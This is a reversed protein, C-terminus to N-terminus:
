GFGRLLRVLWRTRGSFLRPAYYAGAAHKSTESLTPYPAIVNALASLKLGREVALVWPLILEGAHAGVIGAGLVRGGRGAVVKVLGETALEARARDNQAFPWRVIEHRIGKARAESEGLGVAALEPDTFTAHPLARTSARAPLRFLVNRIVIGAQYNAAHTFRPGGAVDGIAFVRANTTRLRVDVKIGNADTAIGASALGLGDVTAERGAAVLLHTGRLPEATGALILTPGPEARMIKAREHLQIGEALLRARVIEALEPDDRPLIPGQDVIAVEAGLRRFAQALECGIPGGGLVLLRRPLEPLDFVSENTLCDQAALGSVPPIAPRSGTAAVYRRARVRWDGAEVLNPGVFRAQERLVRVGLGEFREVSDHPAIAAIVDRIHRRVAAFDISAGAVTVGFPAGAATAHALAAAAILSKSPVCGVNLCDGGMTGREILVVSAGLQAAGAAVSLGGSGAGIVCLDPTLIQRMALLGQASQDGAAEDSYRDRLPGAVVSAAYRARSVGGQRRVGHRSHRRRHQDGTFFDQGPQIGQADLVADPQMRGLERDLLHPRRRAVNGAPMLRQANVWTADPRQGNDVIAGPTTM